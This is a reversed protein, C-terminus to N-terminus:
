RPITKILAAVTEDSVTFATDGGQNICVLVAFDRKPAIWTNAYNM